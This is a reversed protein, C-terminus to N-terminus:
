DYFSWAVGLRFTRRYYPYDPAVFYNNGAFGSAANMLIFFFRTRKLKLNAHLDIYPFNGIRQKNQLYFRATAPEYADAYYASNYRTDIGLQTFLVKSWITRYNISMFGAFPPLHLYRDKNGKQVLLQTRILWHRSDFDKNLYASLILLESSAQAPLARTNNYIYNGILSYNAGITFKYVQSHISSRITMENINNFNNRWEFHNSYFYQDFYEPVLTKLSGEIRLSTTDRGIKMPKNIFGSLETQGARYGSFYIKGEAEWQWFKGEERFIGGGIFTNSFQSPTNMYRIALHQWQTSSHYWLNDHGIYVRKGFTFKRDPAEYFKIQFINTLRSYKVSDNTTIGNINVHDFFDTSNEKTFKRKNDSFEFEHIFGVRPIFTETVLGSTDPESEITKGVRYENITFLNNNQLKNIADDSIKVTLYDTDNGVFSQGEDIGGNEQGQLRNFLINSHSVFRDSQYSAVLGITHFKNLQNQYQGSSRTQNYIFEFNLNRNINQSHFVNFRTENHKMRNESQVYDLFSYPTTTNYYRIQSPNLWYADFSRAFYFDSNSTRKFFDNSIYAGGNNGTFTNSISVQNFPLYNHFFWLTTDLETPRILSGHNNVQWVKIVSPIKKKEKKETSETDAPNEPNESNSNRSGIQRSNGGTPRIQAHAQFVILLAAIVIYSYKKFM